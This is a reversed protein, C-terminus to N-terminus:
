TEGVVTVPPLLTFTVTFRVAAAVPEPATTVRDPELGANGVVDTVTGAPNRVCVKLTAVAATVTAGGTVIVAEELPAEAVADSVTFGAATGGGFTVPNLREGAATVPPLAVEAVTVSFPAAGAPPTATLRVLEFVATTAEVVSVTPAPKDLADKEI